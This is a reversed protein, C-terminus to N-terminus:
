QLENLDNISNISTINFQNSIRKILGSLVKGPGIEIINKEGTKELEVISEKWRVKNSMQNKLSDIIEKNNSSCIASYNSIININNNEFNLSDIEFKLIEEANSMYKSHFASSVNLKIFKKLGEQQFIIKSRDLNLNTGSIVVQIPSNDNAVEIDLNKQSILKEVKDCDFGILAAMGTTFEEIADNMLEGRKKLIKSCEDIKLKKCAALASYEGLSHGLMSNISTLNLNTESLLTKFIVLSSAFICIQTYKTVNLLDDTNEFIIKKLDISVSDEIEEMTARAIPFNQYFDKTMGSKQSGQGPFVISTM